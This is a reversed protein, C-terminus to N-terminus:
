FKVPVHGWESEWTGDRKQWTYKVPLIELFWWAPKKDLEDNVRAGIDEKAVTWRNGGQQVFHEGGEEPSSSPTTTLGEIGAAKLAGDDFKIGCQADHVQNVMWQLSIDALSCQVTDGVAGGGVDAHCGAFWVELVPELSSPVTSSPEISSSGTGLTRPNSPGQCQTGPTQHHHKVPRKEVAGSGPSESEGLLHCNAGCM